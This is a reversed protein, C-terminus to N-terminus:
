WAMYGRGISSGHPALGLFPRINFPARLVVQQLVRMPFIRKGTLPALISANGDAPEYGKYGSRQVWGVVRDLSEEFARARPNAGPLDRNADRPQHLVANMM